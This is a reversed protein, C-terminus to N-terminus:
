FTSGGEGSGLSVSAARANEAAVEDGLKDLMSGYRWWVEPCNSRLTTGESCMTRALCLSEYDGVQIAAHCLPYEIFQRLNFDWGIPRSSTFSTDGDLHNPLAYTSSSMGTSMDWRQCMDRARALLQMVERWDEVSSSVDAQKSTQGLHMIKGMKNLGEMACLLPLPVKSLNIESPEIVLASALMALPMFEVPSRSVTEKGTDGDLAITWAARLDEWRDDSEAIADCLTLRLLLATGHTLLLPSPPLWCFIDEVTRTQLKRHHQNTEEVGNTSQYTQQNADDKNSNSFWGTFMSGVAGVMDKKISRPIRMERLCVEEGGRELGQVDNGSYGLVNGLSEDYKGISSRDAGAGKMDLLAIGGYLKMRINFHLYGCPEYNQVGDFKALKSTMESSRGEAALCHSLAWVSTGGTGDSDRAMAIEALREATSARSSSSSSSLGISILSSAINQAPHSPQLRLAGGDREAWFSSVNTAARCAADTDGLTYAVDLALSLGLLDGPYLELLRLYAGMADHHNNQLLQYLAHLHWRERPTLLHQAPETQEVHNDSSSSGTPVIIADRFSVANQAMTWLSPLTPSSSMVSDQTTNLLRDIRHLYHSGGQAIVPSVAAVALMPSTNITTTSQPANDTNNVANDICCSSSNWDWAHHLLESWAMSSSHFAKAEPGDGDNGTHLSASGRSIICLSMGDFSSIAEIINSDHHSSIATDKISQSQRLTSKTPSSQHDISCITNRDVNSAFTIAEGFFDSQRVIGNPLKELGVAHQLVGGNINDNTDNYQQHYEINNHHTSFNNCITTTHAGSTQQQYSLQLQRITRRAALSSRM